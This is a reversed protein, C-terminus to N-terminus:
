CVDEWEHLNESKEMVWEVLMKVESPDFERERLAAEGRDRDLKKNASLLDAM